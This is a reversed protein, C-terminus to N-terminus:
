PLMVRFVEHFVYYLLPVTVCSVIAAKGIKKVMNAEDFNMFVMGIILFIITGIIFGIKGIVASYILVAIIYTIAVGVDHLLEKSEAYQRKEPSNKIETILTIIWCISITVGILFPFVLPSTVSFLEIGNNSIFGAISILIVAAIFGVIAFVLWDIWRLRTM